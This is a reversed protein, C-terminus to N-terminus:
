ENGEEFTTKATSATSGNWCCFCYIAETISFTEHSSDRQMGNGDGVTVMVVAFVDRIDKNDPCRM